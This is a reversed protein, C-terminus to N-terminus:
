GARARARRTRASRLRRARLLAAAISIGVADIAVDVPDGDRGPVFTQHFEDSLAYALAIAAAAPIARVLGLRPGLAWGWLLTLLGFEGAHALMRAAPGLDPGPDSQGSLYFILAMLALPAPARRLVAGWSGGRGGGRGGPSDGAGGGGPSGPEGRGGGRAKLRAGTM